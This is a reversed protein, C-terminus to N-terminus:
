DIRLAIKMAERVHKPHLASQAYDIPSAEEADLLDPRAGADVLLAAAGPRGAIAAWHLATRGRHDRAHLDAGGSIAQDLRDLSDAFALAHLALPNRKPQLPGSAFILAAAAKIFPGGPTLEIPTMGDQDCLSPDSGASLLGALGLLGGNAAAWHLPTRYTSDRRDVVAGYDLLLWVLDGASASAAHHLPTKGRQDSIAPDSGQRLLFRCTDLVDAACEAETKFSISPTIQRPHHRTIAAILPTTGTEDQGDIAFGFALLVGCCATDGLSAALHLLHPAAAFTSQPGEAALLGRLADSNGMAIAVYFESALRTEAEEQVTRGSGKWTPIVAQRDPRWDNLIAGPIPCVSLCAGCNICREPDIASIARITDDQTLVEKVICEAPCVSRCEGMGECIDIVITFAM